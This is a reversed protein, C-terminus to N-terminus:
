IQTYGYQNYDISVQIQTHGHQNSARCTYRGEDGVRTRPLTLSCLGTTLKYTIQVEPGSRLVETDKLRDRSALVTVCM